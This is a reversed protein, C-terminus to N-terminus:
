EKVLGAALLAEHLDEFKQDLKMFTFTGRAFERENQDCVIVENVILSKGAKIEQNYARVHTVGRTSRLFSINANVTTVWHGYTSSASGAVMDCITFICGGHLTGLPNMHSEDVDMEVVAHGLSMETIVISNKQAFPNERNRRERHREMMEAITYMDEGKPTLSGDGATM